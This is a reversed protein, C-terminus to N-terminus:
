EGRQKAVADVIECLLHAIFMHAEQIRQTDTGPVILAVDAEPALEGGDRGVLAIVFAGKERAARVAETVNRSRGSTSIAIVADGSNVLANVQRVFVGEFGYDNGLSTIVSTDNTLALAPLPKREGRLRGVFESAIHQADAASGGNGFLVLKGGADFVQMLKEALEVIKDIYQTVTARTLSLHADLATDIM